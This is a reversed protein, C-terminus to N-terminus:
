RTIVVEINLSETQQVGLKTSEYQSYHTRQRADDMRKYAKARMGEALMEPHRMLIWNTSREMADVPAGPAITYTDESENYIVLRDAPAQYALSRPYEHWSIRVYQGVSGPNAMVITSAIRYWFYRDDVNFDNRALSNKPNGKRVYRGISEYWVAEIGQFRTVNPLEWVFSNTLDTLSAILARIEFRNDDFFVPRNTDAQIHIERICQNLYAPLMQIMDPRVVESAVRDVLQSFTTM